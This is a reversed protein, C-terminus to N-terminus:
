FWLLRLNARDLHEAHHLHFIEMMGKHKVFGNVILALRLECAVFRHWPGLDNLTASDDFVTYTGTSRHSLGYRVIVSADVSPGRSNTLGSVEHWEHM